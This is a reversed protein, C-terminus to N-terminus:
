IKGSVLRGQTDSIPSGSVRKGIPFTCTLVGTMTSCMPSGDGDPSVSESM